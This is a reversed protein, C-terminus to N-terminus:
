QANLPIEKGRRALWADMSELNPNLQKAFGVDRKGAFEDNFEAYFQFMNGLDDAGPFGFGRYAEPTVANYEVDIKLAKGVKEAMEDGTLHEGAIAVTKGILEDGKQFVGFACREIDEAAIGSLKKDAMPLTIRYKGDEGKQPGMGFFIMNDWYFSTLLKTHPVGAEDFFKDSEGKADFHPVKYKEGLTPMRDDDLPIYKRTDELTSWIVHKLGARKAANAMNRAHQMEKEPSFHEWFFTVFFAGYAGELVSAISDESDIDCTAVEAGQAKLAQAKESNVDRTIAKVAFESNPDNLISRVLGGGQSGTAGFVVITKKM